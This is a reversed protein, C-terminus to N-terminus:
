LKLEKTIDTFFETSWLDLQSKDKIFPIVDLKAQEFDIEAVISKFFYLRYNRVAVIRENFHVHVAFSAARAYANIDTFTILFYLCFNRFRTLKRPDVIQAVSRHSSAARLM